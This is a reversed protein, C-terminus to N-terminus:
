ETKGYYKEFFEKNIVKFVVWKWIFRPVFKPKPKLPPNEGMLDKKLDATADKVIGSVERKYMQRIKKALKGSM